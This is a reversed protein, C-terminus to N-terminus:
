TSTSRRRGQRPLEERPHDDPFKADVDLKDDITKGTLAADLEPLIQGSGLELQLGEGGGEKISRATSRSRSTSRSSTARRARPARAGAAPPARAPTRLLELQEDVAAETAVEPPRVLELGEYTVEGIEPQM